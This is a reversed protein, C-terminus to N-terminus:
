IRTNEGFVFLGEAKKKRGHELRFFGERRQLVNKEIGQKKKKPVPNKGRNTLKKPRKGKSSHGRGRSFWPKKKKGLGFLWGDKRIGGNNRQLAQRRTNLKNKLPVKKNEVKM